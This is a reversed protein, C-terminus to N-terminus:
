PRSNCPNGDQVSIPLLYNSCSPTRETTGYPPIKKREGHVKCREIWINHFALAIATHIELTVDNM